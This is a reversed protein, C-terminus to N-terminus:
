AQLSKKLELVEADIRSITKQNKVMQAFSGQATMLIFAFRQLRAIKETTTEMTSTNQENNM